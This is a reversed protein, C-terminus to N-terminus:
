SQNGKRVDIGRQIAAMVDAAEHPSTRALVELIDAVARMNHAVIATVIGLVIPNVPEGRPVPM